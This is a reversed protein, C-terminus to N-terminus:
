PVLPGGQTFILYDMQTHAYGSSPNALFLASIQLLKHPEHVGNGIAAAPAGNILTQLDAYKSSYLSWGNESLQIEISYMDEVNTTYVGDGNDDERFQFLMIGNSLTPDKHLMVNFYEMNPNESLPYTPAGYASGPMDILAILWDWNVTGGIDFYNNGQPSQDSSQVTFSMNAGSQVFSDWGPNVGSEFDSLLFGEYIKTGLVILTDRLTDAEAAFTLEIACEEAKFLPLSTTSGDWTANTADLVNSFGTIIKRSGSQLGKVEIQWEVNKSFTATFYTTQNESFNVDYNSVALGQVIAFQGYLDNLSPGEFEKDVKCGAFTFVMVVAAFFIKNKM